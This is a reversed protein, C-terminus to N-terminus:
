SRTRSHIEWPTLSSRVAGRTVLISTRGALGMTGGIGMVTLVLGGVVAGIIGIVIDGVIGFGSGKVVIGALMGAILGVILWALIGGPELHM